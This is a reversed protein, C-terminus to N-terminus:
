KRDGRKERVWMQWGGPNNDAYIWDGAWPDSGPYELDPECHLDKLRGSVTMHSGLRCRFWESPLQKWCPKKRTGSDWHMREWIIETGDPMRDVELAHVMRLKDHFLPTYIEDYIM